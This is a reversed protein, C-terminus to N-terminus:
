RLRLDRATQVAAKRDSVGLKRYIASCHTKITNLSVYM